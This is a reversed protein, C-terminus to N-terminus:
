HPLPLKKSGSDLRPLPKELPKSVVDRVIADNM